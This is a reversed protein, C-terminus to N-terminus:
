LKPLSMHLAMFRYNTTLQWIAFNRQTKPTDVMAAVGLMLFISNFKCSAPAPQTSMLIGINTGNGENVLKFDNKSSSVFGTM